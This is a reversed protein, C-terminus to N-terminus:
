TLVDNMRFFVFTYIIWAISCDRVYRLMNVPVNLFSHQQSVCKYVTHVHVGNASSARRMRLSTPVTRLHANTSNFNGQLDGQWSGKNVDECVGTGFIVLQGMIDKLENLLFLWLNPYKKRSYINYVYVSDFLDCKLVHTHLHHKHQCSVAIIPSVDAVLSILLDGGGARPLDEMQVLLLDILYSCASSFNPAVSRDEKSGILYYYNELKLTLPFINQNWFVYKPWLSLIM